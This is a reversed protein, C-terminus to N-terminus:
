IGMVAAQQTANLNYGTGTFGFAQLIPSYPVTASVTVIPAGILTGSSNKNGTYIGGLTQGGTTTSCSTTVTITTANWNRLKNTGGSLLGTMVVAKTDAEVTGGPAGSCSSFNSFDQRAAYRAGDRVAKVLIHENMFYNGIEASGFLLVLLIPLALAMEAAAAGSACRALRVLRIM